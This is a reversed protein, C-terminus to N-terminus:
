ASLARVAEPLHTKFALALERHHAAANVPSLVVDHFYSGAAREVLWVEVGSPPADFADDLTEFRSLRLAALLKHYRELPITFAYAFPEGRDDFRDYVVWLRCDAGFGRELTAVSSSQAGDPYYVTLRVAENVGPRAVVKRLSPLALREAVIHLVDTYRSLSM